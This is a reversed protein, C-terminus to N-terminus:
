HMAQAGRRGAPARGEAAEAGTRLRRYNEAVRTMQAPSFRRTPSFAPEAASDPTEEIARTETVREYYM